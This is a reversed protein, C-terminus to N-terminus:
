APARPAAELTFKGFNTVVEAGCFKPRTDTTMIAEAFDKGGQATVLPAIAPVGALIKDMPLQHGIIGTSSVLAAGKALNLATELAAATAAANTKGLEGTCANANGSNVLIAQLPAGASLLERGFLVPAAAVKNTTFAATWRCPRDSVLLALDPKGSAKIGCTHRAASFGKPSTPHADPLFKMGPFTSGKM